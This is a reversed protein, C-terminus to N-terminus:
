FKTLRLMGIGYLIMILPDGQTVGEKSMLFDAEYGDDRRIM